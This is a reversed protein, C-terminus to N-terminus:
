KNFRMFWTLIVFFYVVYNLFFAISLGQLSFYKFFNISLVLYLTSFLVEFIAYMKVKAKAVLVNAMVWSMIKVIDGLLQFLFLKQMPLFETSFLLLIIKHRFFYICTAFVVAVPLLKRIISFVEKKLALKDNIRSYKPLAYTSIIITIIMLYADSIKVVGQWYGVEVWSSHTAVYSRIIMQILPMVLASIIAMISFKLLKKLWISDISATFFKINVAPSKIFFYNTAFLCLQSSVIGLLAGKVKFFYSLSGILIVSFIAGIISLAAYSRMQNLGNFVSLLIQNLTFGFLTVGFVAIIWGYQQDQFIRQSILGSLSAILCGALLSMLFVFKSATQVISTIISPQDHYESTYKTVGRSVIGGAVIQVLSVFSQFQGIIGFAAAGAFLAIIKAAIFQSSLKAITSIAAWFSTKWFNM